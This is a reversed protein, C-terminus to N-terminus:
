FCEILEVCLDGCVSIKFCGILKYFLYLRRTLSLLVLSSNTQTCILMQCFFCRVKFFANKSSMQVQIPLHSCLNTEVEAINVESICYLLLILNCSFSIYFYICHSSYIYTNWGNQRKKASIARIDSISM